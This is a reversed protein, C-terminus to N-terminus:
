LAVIKKIAESLDFPRRYAERPYDSNSTLVSAPPDIWISALHKSGAVVEPWHIPEFALDVVCVADFKQEQLLRLAESVLPADWIKWHAGLTREL